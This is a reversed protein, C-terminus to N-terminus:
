VAAAGAQAFIRKRVKAMQHGEYTLQLLRRVSTLSISTILCYKQRQERAFASTMWKKGQICGKRRKRSVSNRHARYVSRQDLYIDDIVFRLNLSSGNRRGDLFAGCRAGRHFYARKQCRRVSLTELMRGRPATPLVRKFDNESCGKSIRCM